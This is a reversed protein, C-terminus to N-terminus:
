RSEPLQGSSRGKGNRRWAEELASRGEEWARREEEHKEELRRVEEEHKEELSQHLSELVAM